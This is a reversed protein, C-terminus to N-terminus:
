LSWLLSSWFFSDDLISWSPSTSHVEAVPPLGDGSMVGTWGWDKPSWLLGLSHRVIWPGRGMGLLCVWLSEKVDKQWRPLHLLSNEHFVSLKTLLSRESFSGIQEWKNERRGVQM